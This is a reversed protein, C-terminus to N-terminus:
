LDCYLAKSRDIAQRASIDKENMIIVSLAEYRLQARIGPVVFLVYGGLIRAAAILHAAFLTNFRKNMERWSDKIGINQEKLAALNAASLFGKYASMIAIGVITFVVFVIIVIGIIAAIEIGSEEDTVESLSFDEEITTQTSSNDIDSIEIVSDAINIVFGLFGFILALIFVSQAYKIFKSFAGFSITFPNSDFTIPTKKTAM